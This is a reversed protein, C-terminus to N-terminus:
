LSQGFLQTIVRCSEQNRHIYQIVRQLHECDKSQRYANEDGVILLLEEARSLAVNVRHEDDVFDTPRTRTLSYLVIKAEKGQVADITSCEIRLNRLKDRSATVADQLAEVQALYPSIVLV